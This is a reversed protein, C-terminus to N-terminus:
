GQAQRRLLAVLRPLLNKSVADPGKISGEIRRTSSTGDDNPFAFLPILESSYGADELAQRDADLDFELLHVGGLPGDLEGSELARHFRQCPECWTAGVYVLVGYKEKKGKALEAAVFPAIPAGGTPGRHFRPKAPDVAGATETPQGAHPVPASGSRCAAALAAAVIAVQLKQSPRRM